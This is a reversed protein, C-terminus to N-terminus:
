FYNLAQFFFYLMKRLVNSNKILKLMIQIFEKKGTLLLTLSSANSLLKVLLKWASHADKLQNRVLVMLLMVSSKKLSNRLPLKMLRRNMEQFVCSNFLFNDGLNFTQNTFFKILLEILIGEDVVSHTDSPVSFVSANDNLSDEDSTIGLGDSRIKQGSSGSLM